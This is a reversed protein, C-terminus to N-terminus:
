EKEASQSAAEGSWTYSLLKGSPDFKVQLLKFQGESGSPLRASGYYYTWQDNKTGDAELVMGQASPSGLMEKVQEKTTEGQRARSAFDGFEFNRGVKATAACGALFIVGTAALVALRRTSRTLGTM